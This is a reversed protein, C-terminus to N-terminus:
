RYYRNRPAMTKIKKRRKVHKKLVRILRVLLLVALLPLLIFLFFLEFNFRPLPNPDDEAQRRIEELSPALSKRAAISRGAVLRFVVPSGEPPYYTLTGMEEGKTIPARFERTYETYTLANFNTVWYQIQDETTVILDPIIKDVQELTLQLRGLQPDELDFGSIEVVRPNMAYLEAISTTVFQTFGYEMLRITDRYSSADTSSDFVVAILNVGNKVASSVLCYGAASHHGTKIGNAYQYYRDAYNETYNILKNTTTFTRERYVNDAPLTKSKTFAIQRFTENQMANRAIVAMDRATSYHNEDHYGHANAFHTSICGMATAARNMLHVFDPINGSVAEAIVNAGDNGSILMTAYIIDLLNVQEGVALGVKSSDEPVDLATESVTCIQNLDGMTIALLATMIKTTSAPYMQVDANKEFIVEGSEAEILIAASCTLHSQELYEPHNPDYQTESAYSHGAFCFLLAAASAFALLRKFFGRSFHM